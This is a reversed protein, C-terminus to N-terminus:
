NVSDSEIVDQSGLYEGLQAAANQVTSDGLNLYRLFTKIQSHGTIKMVETHPIGARIMRTTATHRLDHFHLDKIKARECATVFARHPNTINFVLSDSGGKAVAQLDILAAAVRPTMGIRRTKQTKSNFYQVTILGSAFDIDAWTLKMIEGQRMATDVAMMIIPALHKRRAEVDATVVKGKREYEITERGVCAALLRREEDFSLVRDREKEAALNIPFKPVNVLRNAERGRRFMSRILALDRNITATTVEDTLRRHKAFARLDHETISAISRGAFYVSIRELKAKSAKWDKVGEVKIGNDYVPKTLYNAAFWTVLDGFTTAPTVDITGERHAALEGLAWQKAELTSHVRKRKRKYKGGGIDIYISGYLRGNITECYEGYRVRSKKKPSM